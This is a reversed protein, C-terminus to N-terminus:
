ESATVSTKLIECTGWWVPNPASLRASDSPAVTTSGTSTDKQGDLDRLSFTVSVDVPVENDNQIQISAEALMGNHCELNRFIVKKSLAMAEDEASVCGQVALLLCSILFIQGIGRIM